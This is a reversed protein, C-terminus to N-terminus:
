PGREADPVGGLRRELEKVQNESIPARPGYAFVGIFALVGHM